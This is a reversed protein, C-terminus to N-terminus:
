ILGNLNVVLNLLVYNRRLQVKVGYNNERIKKDNPFIKRGNGSLPNLLIPEENELFQAGTHKQKILRSAYCTNAGVETEHM